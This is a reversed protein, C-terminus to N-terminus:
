EILVLILSTKIFIAFENHSSRRSDPSNVLGPETWKLSSCAVLNRVSLEDQAPESAPLSTRTMLTYIDIVNDDFHELEACRFKMWLNCYSIAYYLTNFFIIQWRQRELDVVYYNYQLILFMIPRRMIRQFVRKMFLNNKMWKNQVTKRWERIIILHCFGHSALPKNNDSCLLHCFGHSALPKKNDSCLLDCFGHYALPKDNDSCLLHCFGHSPLPKNNDSCLM